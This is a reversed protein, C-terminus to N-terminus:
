SILCTPATTGMGEGPRDTLTAPHHQLNLNITLTLGLLDQSTTMTDASHNEALIKQVM